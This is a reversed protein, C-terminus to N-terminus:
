CRTQSPHISVECGLEGLAAFLEGYFEAVTGSTLTTKWSGGDSTSIALAHDLFDFDIQIDRPGYPMLSTTLGRVSPYLAASWSHNVWPMMEMRVKGVIQFWRHLTAITESWEKHPLVPWDSSTM